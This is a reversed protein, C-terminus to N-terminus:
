NSCFKMSCDESCGHLDVLSVLGIRRRRPTFLANQTAYDVSLKIPRVANTDYTSANPWPHTSHRRRYSFHYVDCHMRLLEIQRPVIINADTGPVLVQKDTPLISCSDRIATTLNTQISRRLLCRKARLALLRFRECVCLGDLQIYSVHLM